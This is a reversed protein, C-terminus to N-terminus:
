DEEPELSGLDPDIHRRLRKAAALAFRLTVEKRRSAHMRPVVEPAARIIEAGYRDALILGCDDPLIEIPFNAPTAFYYHDCYDLYEPWKGDSRFDAVSRKIEVILLRGKGDIAGVDARRGSRLRFETLSQYGLHRLMRAVGRALLDAPDAIEGPGPPAGDDDGSTM